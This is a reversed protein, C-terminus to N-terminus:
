RPLAIIRWQPVRRSGDTEDCDESAEATSRDAVPLADLCLPETCVRSWTTGNM